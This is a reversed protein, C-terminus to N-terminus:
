EDADEPELPDGNEDCEIVAEVEPYYYRLMQEMGRKVTVTSSPCGRCSGLLHVYLEGRERDFRLVELDGGDSQLMPRVRHNLTEKISEFLELDEEGLPSSASSAPKGEAEKAAAAAAAAAEEREAAAAESACSLQAATSARIAAEVLPKLTVWDAEPRKGVSVFGAGLLVSEVGEVQLIASAMPSDSINPSAKTYNRTAVKGKTNVLPRSVLPRFKLAHPNPTEESLIRDGGGAESSFSVRCELKRGGAARGAAGVAAAAAAGGAASPMCAANLVARRAPLGVAEAAFGKQAAATASAAAAFPAAPAAAASAAAAAALPRALLRQM